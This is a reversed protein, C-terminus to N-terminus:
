DFVAIVEEPSRLEFSEYYEAIGGELDSIGIPDFESIVADYRDSLVSSDPDLNRIVVLGTPAAAAVHIDLDPRNRLLILLTKWVDGTWAGQIQERATMEVSSPCCDHLAIVGDKSMLKEANIFDRLLVEYHHLGDLFALDFRIDNREAFGSAFFDDSTQQFLHMQTASPHSLPAKLRFKPDVAVFNCDVKSLSRGTFTGVELYWDPNLVAHLRGLMRLYRIGGIVPIETHLSGDAVVNSRERKKTRMNRIEAVYNHHEKTTLFRAGPESGIARSTKMASPSPVEWDDKATIAGAAILDRRLTKFDLEALGRNDSRSERWWIEKIADIEIAQDGIFAAIHSSMIDPSYERRNIMTIKTKPEVSMAILHLPSGEVCVIHDAGRYVAMQDSVSVKEPAFIEYGARTMLSELLDECLIRGLTPDLCNRSVYIQKTSKRAKPRRARVWDVFAPSPVCRTAESFLDPATVLEDVLTHTLCIRHADQLGLGAAVDSFIQSYENTAKDGIFVVGDVDGAFELAWFRGLANTIVHGFHLRCLGGFLWRGKPRNATPALDSFLEPTPLGTWRYSAVEANPAQKGFADFVGAPRTGRPSSYHWQKPVLFADRLSAIDDVPLM